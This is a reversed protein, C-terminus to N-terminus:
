SNSHVLEFVLQEAEQLLNKKEHETMKELYRSSYPNGYLDELAKEFSEEQTLEALTQELEKKFTPEIVLQDKVHCNVSITWVFSEEYEEGDQLAELLEGNKIKEIAEKELM